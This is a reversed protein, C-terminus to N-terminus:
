YIVLRMLKRTRPNYLSLSPLETEEIAQVDSLDSFELCELRAKILESVLIGYRELETAQKSVRRIKRDRSLATANIQMGAVSDVRLFQRYVGPM